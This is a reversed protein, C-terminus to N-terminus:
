IIKHNNSRALSDIVQILRSNVYYYNKSYSTVIGEKKLTRNIPIDFSGNTNDYITIWFKEDNAKLNITESSVMKLRNIAECIQNICDRNRVIVSFKYEKHYIYDSSQGQIKITSIETNKINYIYNKLEMERRNSCGLLCFIL